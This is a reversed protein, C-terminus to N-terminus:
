FQANKHQCKYIGCYGVKQCDYTGIASVGKRSFKVYYSHKKIEKCITSKEMGIVNAISSKSSNNNLGHEIFNRYQLDLHKSGKTNM